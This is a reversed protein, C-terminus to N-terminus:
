SRGRSRRGPSSPLPRIRIGENTITAFHGSWSERSMLAELAREAISAATDGRIRFLLVGSSAPLRAHFALDGFGKDFTAVIRGEAQALALVKEDPTGPALERIWLVDHGTARLRVVLARALNEDALIRM